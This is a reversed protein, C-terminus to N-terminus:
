PLRWLKRWLASIAERRWLPGGFVILRVARKFVRWRVKRPPDDFPKLGQANLIRDYPKPKM